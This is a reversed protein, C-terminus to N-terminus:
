VPAVLKTVAIGLYTYRWLTRKLAEEDVKNEKWFAWVWVHFGCDLWECLGRDFSTLCTCAKYLGQDFSIWSKCDYLSTCAETFRPWVRALRTCAKTLRSRVLRPWVLALRPCAETLRLHLWQLNDLNLAKSGVKVSYRGGGAGVGWGRPNVFCYSHSYPTNLSNTLNWQEHVMRWLATAEYFWQGMNQLTKFATM